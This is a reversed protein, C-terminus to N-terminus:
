ARDSHQKSERSDGAPPPPPPADTKRNSAMSLYTSWAVGIINSYLVRFHVPVVAFSVIQAPIWLTWNAKVVDPIKLASEHIARPVDWYTFTALLVLIGFIFVPAFVFQDFFLRQAVGFAGTASVVRELMGFWLHLGSGIYFTSVFVFRALREYEFV